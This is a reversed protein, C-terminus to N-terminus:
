KQKSKSKRKAKGDEEILDQSVDSLSISIDHLTNTLQFDTNEYHREKELAKLLDAGIARLQASTFNHHQNNESYQSAVYVQLIRSINM